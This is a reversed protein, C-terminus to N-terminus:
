KTWRITGGRTRRRDGLREMWIYTRTHTDIYTYVTHASVCLKVCYKLFQLRNSCLHLVIRLDLLCVTLKLIAAVIEVIIMLFCLLFLVQEQRKYLYVWGRMDAM